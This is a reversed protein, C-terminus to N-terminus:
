AARKSLCEAPQREEIVFIESGLCGGLGKGVVARDEKERLTEFRCSTNRRLDRLSGWVKEM